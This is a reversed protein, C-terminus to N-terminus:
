RPPLSRFRSLIPSKVSLMSPYIKSLKGASRRASKLFTLSIMPTPMSPMLTPIPIPIAKSAVASTSNKMEYANFNFEFELSRLSQLLSKGEQLFSKMTWQMSPVPSGLSSDCSERIVLKEIDSIYFRQTAEFLFGSEGIVRQLRFPQGSTPSHFSIMNTHEDTGHYEDEGYDFM